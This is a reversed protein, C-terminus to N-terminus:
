PASTIEVFSASETINVGTGLPLDQNFQTRERTERGCYISFKLLHSDMVVEKATLSTGALGIHCNEQILFTKDLTANFDLKLTHEHGEQISYGNYTVEGLATPQLMWMLKHRLDKEALIGLTLKDGAKSRKISTNNILEITSSAKFCSDLTEVVEFLVGDLQIYDDTSLSNESQNKCSLLVLGREFDYQYDILEINRHTYGSFFCFLNDNSRQM